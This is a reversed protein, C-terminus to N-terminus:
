INNLNIIEHLDIISHSKKLLFLTRPKWKLNIKDFRLELKEFRNLWTMVGILSERSRMCDIWTRISIPAWRIQSSLWDLTNGIQFSCSLSWRTLVPSCVNTIMRTSAFNAMVISLRKLKIKARTLSSWTVTGSPVVTAAVFWSIKMTWPALLRRIGRAWFTWRYTLCSGNKFITLRTVQMSFVSLQTSLYKRIPEVSGVSRTSLTAKHAPHWTCEVLRSNLYTKVSTQLWNFGRVIRVLMDKTIEAVM